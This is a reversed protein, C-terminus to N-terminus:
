GIYAISFNDNQDFSIEGVAVVMKLTDGVALKCITSGGTHNMTTNTGYEIMIQPTGTVGGTNNKYVILQSITGLSNSNTRTIVNVQYLGAIPATFTGTTNDWGSGQQYDVNLYSGSLTTVATKGGGAGTVRFAPRDPMTISGSTITMSGSLTLSGTAIITQTLPNIYSATSAFSSSVAQLVYSSTVANSAWSATGQLSGTFSTAVLSGTVTLGNSYNGSGSVDLTYQPTVKNIGVRGVNYQSGSYPNGTITSYSGTAFIIAGLNISNKTNDPLTINTGIIINNTGISTQPTGVPAYGAYYGILTSFSASLANQGAAVGIFTSQAADIAGNGAGIGFFISQNANTAQTGALQGLFISNNANTAAQGANGGFFISNNTNLLSTSPRVSYLTSGTVSLPYSSTVANQAYSATSAFSSSVATQTYSATATALAGGVTAVAYGSLAVPFTLTTTNNSTLAITQPIIQADTSDYAQVLVSKYGLNHNFTWTTSNTFSQTVNYSSINAAYSASIANSAWSASGQLSGTIGSTVILSGTVISNNQSILGNRAIFENAM